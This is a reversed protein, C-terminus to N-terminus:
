NGDSTPEAIVIRGDLASWIRQAIDLLTYDAYKPGVLQMGLPLGTPGAALPLSLSPMGLYTWIKTTDPLDPSDLGQPAEGGAALTIIADAPFRDNLSHTLEAQRAVAAHYERPTITEGRDLMNLLVKSITTRDFHKEARFYYALAKCYIVEHAEFIEAAEPLECRSIEFGGLRALRDAWDTLTRRAYPKAQDWHPGRVLALRTPERLPRPQVKRDVWPYNRGSVRIVEFLLKIDELSRALCGITDLTDTTKLVGTRPVLGFTPKFGFVGCYSAPRTISGATQSGLALPVMGCAVAAASGASSTGPAWGLRHPNHTETPEHVAFESTTTKGPIVGGDYQINFVVRADNGPQFDKWILSGMQTPMAATNFIDKMGVPLGWLRGKFEDSRIKAEILGAQELAADRDLWTWAKVLPELAEIRDFLARNLELCGLRRERILAIAEGASLQHIQSAGTM